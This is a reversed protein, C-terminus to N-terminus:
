RKDPTELPGLRMECIMAACGPTGSAVPTIVPISEWLSVMGMIKRKRKRRRKRKREKEVKEVVQWWVM